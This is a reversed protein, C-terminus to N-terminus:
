KIRPTTLEQSSSQIMEKSAKYHPQVFRSAGQAKSSQVRVPRISFSLPAEAFREKFIRYALRENYANDSIRVWRGTNMDKKFLSYMVLGRYTLQKPLGVTLHNKVDNSPMRYTM